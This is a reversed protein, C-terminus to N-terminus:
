LSLDDVDAAFEDQGDMYTYDLDGAGVMIGLIVNQANGVRNLNPKEYM